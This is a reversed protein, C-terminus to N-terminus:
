KLVKQKKPTKEEARSGNDADSEFYNRWRRLEAALPEYIERNGHEDPYDWLGNYCHRDDVWGPHNLIPYLCIGQMPIGQKIAADTEECVYRLWSPRVDDETGTEAIFIPRHYREYVEGLMERLPRYLANSRKLPTFRGIRRFGKLNYYWQNHPYYNVGIIDLYEEKGGLEPWLRGALMDWAQFQSMRYAEAAPREEPRRPSAVVHIIPDIQVFRASPQVAWIAKITEISARALHAKLEFGRGTVFPFMSGEDGAAWSFFSIENVPVFFGPGNLENSLWKAFAAGYESLSSVFEAKFLDLHDPWGFHCLDWIVQTGTARAARVIPLVSSFDYKGPTAEVVHWRVGERAACLGQKQLRLYDRHAFREHETEAIFDMRKGSRRRFTSCEFGGAFFSKLAPARPIVESPPESVTLKM